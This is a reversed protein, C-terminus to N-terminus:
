GRDRGGADRGPRRNESRGLGAHMARVAAQARDEAQLKTLISAVYNRVTKDSLHLTSAIVTNTAGDALLRLVDLERDTLEPFPRAARSSPTAASFYAMARGAVGGGFVVDGDAVTLIARVIQEESAGKVLYGRAGARMATFLSEDNDFMTLVVVAIGPASAALERIADLGTTGPMQLDMLVVDAQEEVAVRVAAAGDAAEGVVDLDRVGTLAARLGHRFVPHDDAVVIRVSM